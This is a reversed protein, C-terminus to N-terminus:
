ECDEVYLLRERTDTRYISKFLLPPQGRLFVMFGVSYWLTKFQGGIRRALLSSRDWDSTFANPWNLSVPASGIREVPSARLVPEQEMLRWGETKDEVFVHLFLGNSFHLAFDQDTWFGDEITTNALLAADAKAKPALPHVYRIAEEATRFTPSPPESDVPITRNDNVM